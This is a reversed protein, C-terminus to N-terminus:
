QKDPLRYNMRDVYLWLCRPDLDSAFPCKYPVKLANPSKACWTNSLLKVTSAYLKEDMRLKQQTPLYYFEVMAGFGSAVKKFESTTLSDSDLKCGCKASYHTLEKFLQTVDENSVLNEVVVYGYRHYFDIHRQTLVDSHKELIVKIADDKSDEQLLPNYSIENYLCKGLTSLPLLDTETNMVKQEMSFKGNFDEPHEFKKRKEKLNEITKLNVKNSVSYAHYFVSRPRDMHNADSNRHPSRIDFYVFDGKKVPEYPINDHEKVVMNVYKMYEEVSSGASPVSASTPAKWDKPVRKVKRVLEFLDTDEPQNFRIHYSSIWPSKVRFSKGDRYKRDTAPFYEEAIASFGPILELGGEKLTPDEHGDTLCVMSQFPRFRDLQGYSMDKRLKAWLNYPWADLHLGTGAQKLEENQLNQNNNNSHHNNRGGGKGNNSKGGRQNNKNNRGSTSSSSPTTTTTNSSSSSSNQHESRFQHSSSSSTSTRNSSGGNTSSNNLSSYSIM